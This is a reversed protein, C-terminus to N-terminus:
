PFAEEKDDLNPELWHSAESHIDPDAKNHLNTRALGPLATLTTRVACPIATPVTLLAKVISTGHIMLTFFKYVDSAKSRLPM